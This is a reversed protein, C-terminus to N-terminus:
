VLKHVKAGKPYSEPSAIDIVKQMKISVMTDETM